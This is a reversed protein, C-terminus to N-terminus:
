YLFLISYLIALCGFALLMEFLLGAFEPSIDLCLVSNQM